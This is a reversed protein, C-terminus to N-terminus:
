PNVVVLFEVTSIPPVGQEWGRLQNFTLTCRGGKLVRFYFTEVTVGGTVNEPAQFAPPAEMTVVTSDSIEYDWQYGADANLDLRLSFKDNPSATFTGGNMSSDLQTQTPASSCSYGIFSLALLVSAAYRNPM